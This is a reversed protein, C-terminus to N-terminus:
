SYIIYYCEAQLAPIKTERCLPVCVQQLEATHCFSFAWLVFLSTGGVGKERLIFRSQFSLTHFSSMAVSLKYGLQFIPTQYHNWFWRRAMKEQSGAWLNSCSPVATAPLSYNWCERYCGLCDETWLKAHLRNTLTKIPYNSPLLTKKHLGSLLYSTKILFAALDKWFLALCIALLVTVQPDTFSNM